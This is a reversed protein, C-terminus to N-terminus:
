YVEYTKRRVIKKWSGSFTIFLVVCIKNHSLLPKYSELNFLTLGIFSDAM